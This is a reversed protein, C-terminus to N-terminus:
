KKAELGTPAIMTGGLILAMVLTLSKIINIKFM